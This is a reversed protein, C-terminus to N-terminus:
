IKKSIPIVITLNLRLLNKIDHKSIFHHEHKVISLAVVCKDSIVRILPFFRIANLNLFYLKVRFRNNTFGYIIPNLATNSVTLFHAAIYLLKIITPHSCFQQYKTEPYCFLNLFLQFINMPLWLIAYLVVVAVLM